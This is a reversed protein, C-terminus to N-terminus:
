RTSEDAGSGLRDTIWHAVGEGNWSSVSRDAHERYYSEEASLREPDLYWPLHRAVYPWGTRLSRDIHHEPASRYLAFTTDVAARFVGPEVEDNWYRSEWAVVQDRHQGHDPIDDIRLGLGVKDIDVHRDLLRQLHDFVDPPCAEDPIVDPDTVVFSGRSSLEAVLGIVWPAEHGLNAGLRWVHHPSSDLYSVLPPYSSDNDVLHIETVENAELWTVLDDLCGLRDRVIIVVPPRWEMASTAETPAGREASKRPRRLRATGRAVMHRLRHGVRVEPLARLRDIEFQLAALESEGAQLRDVQHQLEVSRVAHAHAHDVIVDARHRLLHNEAVLREVDSDSLPREM